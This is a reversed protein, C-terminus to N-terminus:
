AEEEIRSLGYEREREREREWKEDKEAFVGGGTSYQVTCYQVTSYLVTFTRMLLRNTSEDDLPLVRKGQSPGFFCSRRHYTIVLFGSDGSRHFLTLNALHFDKAIASFLTWKDHIPENLDDENLVTSFTTRMWDLQFLRGWEVWKFFGNGNLGNFYGNENLGTTFATRMWSLPFTTGMWGMQFLRGWEVWKSFDDRVSLSSSLFFSTRCSAILITKVTVWNKVFFCLLFYARENDAFTNTLIRIKM